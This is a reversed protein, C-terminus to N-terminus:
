GLVVFPPAHHGNKTSRMLGHASPGISEKRSETPRTASGWSRHELRPDAGVIMRSSHSYVGWQSWGGGGIGVENMV